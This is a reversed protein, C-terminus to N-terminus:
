SEGERPSPGKARPLDRRCWESWSGVYLSPIGLGAHEMALIAHCATVGSGCHVAIAETPRDGVVARVQAAIEEPARFRGDAGLHDMHFLNRAGPIHGAIPDIPEVEGRYRGPARVDVLVRRPDRTWADIAEIPLVPLQWSTAELPTVPRPTPLENTTPVGAAVAAALGGDLVRVRRHGLARIMWWARAAANAGGQTDYVVVDSEAGVGMGALRRAFASPEPLPHRGGESADPHPGALETELDLFRAGPLHAAEYSARADAGTRADLLVLIGLRERLETPSCLPSDTM